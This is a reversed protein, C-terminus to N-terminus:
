IYFKKKEDLYSLSVNELALTSKGRGTGCFLFILENPKWEKYDEGIIDTLFQM